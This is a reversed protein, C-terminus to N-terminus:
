ARSREQLSEFFRDVEQWVSDGGSFGRWEKRILGTLKYCQDIPAIFYRRHERRRDVLLAEVDPEMQGLAPNNRVLEEWAELDLLSETGGAPSPYYAVVRGAKSHHLFFALDIPLRLANWGTDDIKFDDLRRGDRPIRILKRANDRFTFLIACADCSCLIQGDSCQLVHPHAPGLGQGCLECREEAPRRRTFGRLAEFVNKVHTPGVHNSSASM